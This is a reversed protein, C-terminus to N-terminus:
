IDASSRQSPNHKGCDDLDSNVLRTIIVIININKV